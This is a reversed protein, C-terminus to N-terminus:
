NGTTRHEDNCLHGGSCLVGRRWQAEVNRFANLENGVVVDWRLSEGFEGAVDAVDFASQV